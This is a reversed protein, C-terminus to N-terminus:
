MSCVCAACVHQVCRAVEVRLDQGDELAALLAAVQERSVFERRRPAAFTVRGGEEVVVGGTVVVPPGGPLALGVSVTLKGGSKGETGAAFVAAANPPLPAVEGVSLEVVTSGPVLDPPIFTYPHPVPLDSEPIPEDAAGGKTGPKSRPSASTSPRSSSASVTGSATPAATAAAITDTDDLTPPADRQTLWM